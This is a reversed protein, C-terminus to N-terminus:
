SVYMRGLVSDVALRSGKFNTPGHYKVILVRNM